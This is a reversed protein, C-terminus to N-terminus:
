ARAFDDRDTDLRLWDLHFSRLASLDVTLPSSIYGIRLIHEPKYTIYSHVLELGMRYESQSAVPALNVARGVEYQAAESGPAPRPTPCFFPNLRGDIVTPIAFGNAGAKKDQMVEEVTYRILLVRVPPLGPAPNFHGLGLNNRLAHPWDAGAAALIDNVAIETTAFVPRRDRRVNWADCVRALIADDRKEVARELEPLDVGSDRLAFNADEIRLLYLNPEISPWRNSSNDPGFTDPVGSEGIDIELNAEAYRVHAAKV